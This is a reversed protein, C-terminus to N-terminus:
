KAEEIKKIMAKVGDFNITYNNQGFAHLLGTRCGLRMASNWITDGNGIGGYKKVAKVVTEHGFNCFSKDETPQGQTMAWLLCEAAQGRTLAFEQQQRMWSIVPATDDLLDKIKAFTPEDFSFGPNYDLM